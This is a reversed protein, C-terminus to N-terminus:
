YQRRMSWTGTVGPMAFEVFQGRCRLLLRRATIEWVGRAVQEVPDYEGRYQVPEPLVDDDITIGHLAEIQERLTVTRDGLKAFYAPYQKRFTLGRDTVRGRVTAEAAAGKTPDDQIVGQFRGFWGQRVTLTFGVGPPQAPFPGESDYEYVGAWSGTIDWAAM